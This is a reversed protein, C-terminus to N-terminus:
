KPPIRLVQGIIIKDPHILMPRNAEFIKLYLDPTVNGYFVKSISTLTDGDKVVYFDSRDVSSTTEIKNSEADADQAYTFNSFGIFVSACIGIIIFQKSM